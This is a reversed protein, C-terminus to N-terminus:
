KKSGDYFPSFDLIAIVVFIARYFDPDAPIPTPDGNKARDISEHLRRDISEEIRHIPDEIRRPVLLFGREVDRKQVKRRRREGTADEAAAPEDLPRKFKLVEGV